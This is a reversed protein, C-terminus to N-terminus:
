VRCLHFCEARSGEANVEGRAMCGESRVLSLRLAMSAVGDGRKEARRRVLMAPVLLSLGEERADEDRPM